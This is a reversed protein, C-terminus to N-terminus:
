NKKIKFGESPRRKFAQKVDKVSYHFKVYVARDPKTYSTFLCCQKPASAVAFFIFMRSSNLTSWKASNLRQNDERKIQTKWVARHRPSMTVSVGLSTIFPAKLMTSNCIGCLEALSTSKLPFVDGCAFRWLSNWWVKMWKMWKKRNQDMTMSTWGNTDEIALTVDAFDESPMMVWWLWM